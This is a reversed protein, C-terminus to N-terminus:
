AVFYEVIRLLSPANLCGTERDTRGTQFRLFSCPQRWKNGSRLVCKMSTVSLFLICQTVLSVRASDERTM